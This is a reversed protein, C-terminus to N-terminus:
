DERERIKQAHVGPQSGEERQLCSGHVASAVDDACAEDDVTRKGRLMRVLLSSGSRVGSARGRARVCVPSSEGSQVRGRGLDADDVARELESSLVLRGDCAHLVREDLTECLCPPRPRRRLSVKQQVMLMRFVVIVTKFFIAKTAKGAQEDKNVVGFAHRQRHSSVTIYM